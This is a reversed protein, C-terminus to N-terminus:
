APIRLAQGVYIRNPDALHNLATLERVTTHYKVAIGSLTDGPRVHYTRPAPQPRPPLSPKVPQLSTSWARLTVESMYGISRDTPVSSFQWFHVPHGGASPRPHQEAQEYTGGGEPWPYAPFWIPLGAPVHGAAYESYGAYVGVHQHPFAAQVTSIWEAAWAKIQGATRGAYNRHDAYPELDLWHIFGPEAHADARVAALYNAAETKADQNPWGFHYGGVVMGAARAGAMHTAYRPDHTHEGESAKVFVFRVGDARLQPWNQAGQYTSLDIGRTISSM